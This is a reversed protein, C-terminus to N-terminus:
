SLPTMGVFSAAAASRPPPPYERNAGTIGIFTATLDELTQQIWEFAAEDTFQQRKDRTSRRIHILCLTEAQLEAVLQHIRSPEAPQGVASVARGVAPGTTTTESPGAAETGTNWWQNRGNKVSKVAHLATDAHHLLTGPTDGDRPFVALGMSMGISVEQGSPLRFPEEV